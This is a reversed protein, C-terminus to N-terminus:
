WRKSYTYIYKYNLLSVDVAVKKVRRASKKHVKILSEKEKCM